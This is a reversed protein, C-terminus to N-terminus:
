STAAICDFKGGASENEPDDPIISAFSMAAWSWFLFLLEVSLIGEPSSFANTSFLFSPIRRNM